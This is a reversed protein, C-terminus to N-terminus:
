SEIDWAVGTFEEVKIVERSGNLGVTTSGRGAHALKTEIRNIIKGEVGMWWWIASGCRGINSRGEMWRRHDISVARGVNSRREMWRRHYILIAIIGCGGFGHGDKGMGSNIVIYRGM